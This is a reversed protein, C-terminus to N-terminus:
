SGAQPASNYLVIEACYGRGGRDIWMQDYTGDRNMDIWYFLPKSAGVQRATMFDLRGDGNLDFESFVLGVSYDSEERDADRLPERPIQLCNEAAPVATASLLLIVAAWLSIRRM